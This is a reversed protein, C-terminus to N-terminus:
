RPPPWANFKRGPRCNPIDDLAAPSMRADKIREYLIRAKITCYVDLVCVSASSILNKPNSPQLVATEYGMAAVALKVVTKHDSEDYTTM